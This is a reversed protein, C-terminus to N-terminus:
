ERAGSATTVAIRTVPGGPNGATPSHGLVAVAALVILLIGAFWLVCTPASFYRTAIGLGLTPIILGLYAIVYFGALAEGRSDPSAMAAITSVGNTFLMGGGAVALAGGALFAALNPYQLALALVALGAAETAVGANLRWHPSTRASIAQAMAAAAFVLFIVAGALVRAPHHLTGAVFGTALSVFFGFVACAAIGGGVAAGYAAPNGQGLSVRQPRYRPRRLPIAATEPAFAVATLCFTLIVAFAIYPVRLPGPALQALIGTILPSVGLGGINAVSSVIEFRGPGAGPHRVSHLEHLYATATASIIGVGIGTLLRGLVLGPLAPWALLIVAAVVQLALAPILVKKRGIWDSIHGAALLSAVEGAAYVAFVITVTSTSFGDRQEYLPYLPAPAASFAM